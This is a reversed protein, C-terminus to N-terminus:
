LALVDQSLRSIAIDCYAQSLEIGVCRIGHDKCIRMTTGSGMFPDVLVMDRTAVKAVLKAWAPEPKPCPHGNKEPRQTMVWSCQSAGKGQLHHWGYYLIPNADAFGFRQRGAAAPSYFVGFSDAPPYSSINTFGPTVVLTKWKAVEFLAKIVVDRIYDPTDEFDSEYNGKGRAKSTGGRGGNIGYPPDTVIIDIEGLQPLVDLCDANYITVGAEDYYPQIM